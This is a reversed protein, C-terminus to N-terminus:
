QTVPQAAIGKFAPVPPLPPLAAWEEPPAKMGCDICPVTRNPDGCQPCAFRDVFADFRHRCKGCRWLAGVPPAVRCDPCVFGAHRPGALTRRLRWAQRMGMCSQLLGFLATLLAGLSWLRASIVLVMVSVVVGIGAAILLSPVRGFALWMLGRLIQGGDLPYFPLLNFALLVLNMVIVFILFSQVGQSAGMASALYLAAFMLPTLAINVLPGAAMCWIMAWPRAPPVFLALGGLPWLIIKRATGGVSKCALAHGFEHLMVIVFLAVIEASLWRTSHALKHRFPFWLPLVLLWSWHACVDIGFARFLSVGTNLRLLKHM